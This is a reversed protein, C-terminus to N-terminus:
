TKFRSFHHHHVALRMQDAAAIMKIIQKAVLKFHNLIKEYEASQKNESPNLLDKMFIIVSHRYAHCIILWIGILFNGWRPWAETAPLGMTNRNHDAM